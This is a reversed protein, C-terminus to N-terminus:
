RRMWQILHGTWELDSDLDLNFEDLEKKNNWVAKWCSKLDSYLALVFIMIQELKAFLLDLEIFRIKSEACQHLAVPTVITILFDFFLQFWPQSYRVDYRDFASIEFM